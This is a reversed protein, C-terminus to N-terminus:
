LPHESRARGPRLLGSAYAAAASALAGAAYWPPICIFWWGGYESPDRGLWVPSWYLSYALAFPVLFALARRVILPRVQGWVAGLLGSALAVVLAGTALSLSLLFQLM